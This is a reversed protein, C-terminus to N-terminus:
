ERIEPNKFIRTASVEGNKVQIECTVGARTVFISNSDYGVDYPPTHNSIVSITDEFKSTVHIQECETQVSPSRVSYLFYPGLFVFLLILCFGGVAGILTMFVMTFLNQSKGM